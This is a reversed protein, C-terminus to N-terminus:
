SEHLLDYLDAFARLYLKVSFWMSFFFVFFVLLQLVFEFM